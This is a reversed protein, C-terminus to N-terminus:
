RNSLPRVRFRETPSPCVVDAMEGQKGTLRVTVAEARGDPEFEIYGRQAVDEPEVWEARTGDPLVFVRGFESPLDVFAGGVQVTLWYRGSETDLNLRHPSGQAAAQSRAFEALAVIRSAEDATQRSAFFGRLSPAAMALVVCIIMMVLVLELLTFGRSRRRGAGRLGAGGGARHRLRGAQEGPALAVRRVANWSCAVAGAGCVSAKGLPTNGNRGTTSITM